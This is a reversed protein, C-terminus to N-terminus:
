EPGEHDLNSEIPGLLTASPKGTASLEIAVEGAGRPPGRSVGIGRSGCLWAEAHMRALAAICRLCWAEHARVAEVGLM